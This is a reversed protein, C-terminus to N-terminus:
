FYCRLYVIIVFSGMFYFFLVYIGLIQLTSKALINFNCVLGSEEGSHSHLPSSLASCGHVVVPVVGSAKAGAFCGAGSSSFPRGISTSYKGSCVPKFFAMKAMSDMTWDISKPSISWSFCTRSSWLWGLQADARLLVEGMVVMSGSSFFFLLALLVAPAAVARWCWLLPFSEGDSGFNRGRVQPPSYLLYCHHRALLRIKNWPRTTTKESAPERWSLMKVPLLPVVELDTLDMVSLEFCRFPVKNPPISRQLRSKLAVAQWRCPADLCSFRSALNIQDGFIM